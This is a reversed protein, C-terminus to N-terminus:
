IESVTWKAASLLSTWRKCDLLAEPAICALNNNNNNNNNDDDNDAGTTQRQM